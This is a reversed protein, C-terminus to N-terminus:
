ASSTLGVILLLLLSFALISVYRSGIGTWAGCPDISGVERGVGKRNAKVIM